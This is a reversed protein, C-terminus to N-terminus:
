KEKGLLYRALLTADIATIDEPVSQGNTLYALQFPYKYAVNLLSGYSTTEDFKTFILKQIPSERFENLLIQMDEFKTTLSLVLYNDSELPHNLFENISERYKVEKYNRGTTDMYILDYHALKTLAKELEDKTRVVELPVNLIGAYIKLQEVAAIRYVDTTIMAVRRKQKLVQETALKAITTTKGVGTPGIVNIMRTSENVLNTVPVRKEIIEKVITIVEIEIVEEAMDVMSEHRKLICSVIYEIVEEDVGQKKLRNVCKALGPPLTNGQQENMMFTMMMKRMSTLEDLFPNEKELPQPTPSVPKETGATPQSYYNYLEQPKKHFVSNSTEGSMQNNVESKAKLEVSFKPEASVGEKEISYATVEFKQKAFFGFVGGTKIAKTNVIIANDGLQQRVMKLALPMSDAVIKKTKM